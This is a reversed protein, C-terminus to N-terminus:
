SGRSQWINGDMMQGHEEGLIKPAFRLRGQGDGTLFTSASAKPEDIRSGLPDWHIKM